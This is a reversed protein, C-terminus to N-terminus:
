GEEVLISGSMTLSDVPAADLRLVLTTNAQTVKVGGGPVYIEVLPIRVNWGMRGMTVATGGSALTTNFAEAVMGAAADDPDVPRPTAGATTGLTGSATFGRLWSLGLVEEAADGVDTTQLLHVALVTVPKDDAPQIEVVDVITTIATPPLDIWYKRAM